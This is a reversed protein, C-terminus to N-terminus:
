SKGKLATEGCIGEDLTAVCFAHIGMEQCERAILVAGHGYANAKVAPMLTCGPPLLSQLVKVNHRLAGCDIEIWTRSMEMM